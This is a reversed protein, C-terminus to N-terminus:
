KRNELTYSSLLDATHMITVLPHTEFAQQMTMNITGNIAAGAEYAGMHHAIALMEFGKLKLYNQIILVSKSGHGFPFNDKYTYGEVDQWVGDICKRLITPKYCNVKCIDHFLGCIIISEELSENTDGNIIKYSKYIELAMKTMKISHDLLGYMCANHYKTSAPATFYDTKTTLWNLLNDLGPRNCKNLLDNFENMLSEKNLNNTM